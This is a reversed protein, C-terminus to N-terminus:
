NCLGKRRRWIFFALIAAAVVLVMIVLAAICSVIMKNREAEKEDRELALVANFVDGANEIVSGAIKNAAISDRSSYLTADTDNGTDVNENTVKALMSAASKFKRILPKKWTIKHDFVWKDLTGGLDTIFKVIDSRSGLTAILSKADQPKLATLTANDVINLTLGNIDIINEVFTQCMNNNAADYTYFHEDVNAAATILRNLTFTKNPTLPINYVSVFETPFIPKMLRVRHAKELKYVSGGISHKSVGVLKQLVNLKKENEVTILLYNHYIEDYGLELQKDSFKWSSLLNLFLILVAEVPTRGLQIQLIPNDGIQQLIRRVREPMKPDYKAAILQQGRKKM